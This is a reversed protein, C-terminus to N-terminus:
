YCWTLLPHLLRRSPNSVADIERLVEERKASQEEGEYLGMDVLFQPWTVCFAVSDDCHVV